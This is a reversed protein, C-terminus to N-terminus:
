RNKIGSTVSPIKKPTENIESKLWCYFTISTGNQDIPKPGLAFAKCLPDTACAKECFNIDKCEFSRYDYGYLDIGSQREGMDHAQYYFVEETSSITLRPVQQDFEIKCAGTRPDKTIKMNKLESSGCDNSRAKKFYVSNQDFFLTTESNAPLVVCRGDKLYGGFPCLRNSALLISGAFILLGVSGIIGWM